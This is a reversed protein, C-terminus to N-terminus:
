PVPDYAKFIDKFKSKPYLRRTFATPNCRTVRAMALAYGKIFGYKKIVERAYASCTPYFICQKNDIPSICKRYFNYLGKAPLSHPKSQKLPELVVGASLFDRSGTLPADKKNNATSCAAFLLILPIILPKTLYSKKSFTTM